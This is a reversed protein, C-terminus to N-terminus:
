GGRLVGLARRPPLGSSGDIRGISKDKATAPPDQAIAVNSAMWRTV